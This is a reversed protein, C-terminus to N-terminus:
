SSSTNSRPFLQGRSLHMCSESRGVCDGQGGGGCGWDPRPDLVERWRPWTLVVFRMAVEHVFRDALLPFGAVDGIFAIDDSIVM